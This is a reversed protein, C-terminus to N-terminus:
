RQEEDAAGLSRLGEAVGEHEPDLALAKQWAERALRRKGLKLYLTGKMAQIRADDPYASELAVLEILALEYRRSDFMETVRALGGLYSKTKATKRADVKKTAVPREDDARARDALVEEDAATLGESSSARALPVRMQFNGTADPLEMEWVRGGESMRVVYRDLPEAGSGPVTSPAAAPAAPTSAPEAPPPRLMEEPVVIRKNPTHAVCGALLLVAAAAGSARSAIVM